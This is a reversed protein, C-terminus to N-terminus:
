EDEDIEKISANEILLYGCVGDQMTCDLYLWSDDHEVDAIDEKSMADIDVFLGYGAMVAEILAEEPTTAGCTKYVDLTYGTGFWLRVIYQKEM